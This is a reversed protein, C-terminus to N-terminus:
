ERRETPLLDARSVAVSSKAFSIAVFEILAVVEHVTCLVSQVDSSFASNSLADFRVIFNGDDDYLHLQLANQAGDITQETSGM